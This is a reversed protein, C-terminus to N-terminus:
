PSGAALAAASSLVPGTPLVALLQHSVDVTSSAAYGLTMATSATSLPFKTGDDAILYETGSAAGRAPLDLALVGSGAPISVQDITGGATHQGLPAAIANVGASQMTLLASATPGGAAPDFRACMAVTSSVTNDLLAPPPTPYGTLDAGSAVPVGVLDAQTIPIPAPDGTPYAQGINPAALILAEATRDVPALGTARVAYDQESELAANRARIIQGVLTARGGVVPGPAGIRGVPPVAIDRGAPIPNLWSAPVGIPSVAEYGLAAVATDTIRYRSGQWLLYRIGDSTSVLLGQGASLRTGARQGLLLTVAPSGTASPGVCLTWPGSDLRSAQPVDDPAGPIGIPPGVPAGALSNASVRVVSPTAGTAGGAALLASSYNLVPRLRGDLFLYRTGTDQEVIVVGQQRWSTNGGPVYLGIIGFIAVLLGALLVGLVTGTTFRRSPTELIDPKGHTLASFLRGVVFFYAQVQDKRSQM